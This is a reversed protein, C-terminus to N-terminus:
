ARRANKAGFECRGHCARRARERAGEGPHRRPTRPAADASRRQAARHAGLRRADRRTRVAGARGAHGPRPVPRARAHTRAAHVPAAGRALRRSQLRQGHLPLRAEREAARARTHGGLAPSRRAAERAAAAARAARARHATHAARCRHQARGCAHAHSACGAAQRTRGARAAARGLALGAAPWLAFGASRRRAQPQELAALRYARGRAAHRARRPKRAAARCAVAARGARAHGCALQQARGVVLRM